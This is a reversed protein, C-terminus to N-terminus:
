IKMVPLSLINLPVDVWVAWGDEGQEDGIENGQLKVVFTDGAFTREREFIGEPFNSHYPLSESDFSYFVVYLGNCGSLPQNELRFTEFDRWQWAQETKWFARLDPIHGWPSEGRDMVDHTTTTLSLTHPKSGDAPFRIGTIKVSAPLPAPQQKTILHNLYNLM